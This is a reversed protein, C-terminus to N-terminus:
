ALVMNAVARGRGWPLYRRASKPRGGGAAAAAAAAEAAARAAEARRAKEDARRAEAQARKADAEAHRADAQARRAEAALKTLYSLRSTRERKHAQIREHAAAEVRAAEAHHAAAAAHMQALRAHRQAAAWRRAGDDEIDTESVESCDDKDGNGGAAASVDSLEGGEYGTVAAAAHPPAQAPPTHAFRLSAARHPLTAALDPLGDGRPSWEPAAATAPAAYRARWAQPAKHLDCAPAADAAASGSGASRGRWASPLPDGGHGHLASTEDEAMAPQIEPETAPRLFAPVSLIKPSAGAGPRDLPGSIKAAMAAVKGGPTAAMAAEGQAVLDGLGADGDPLYSGYQLHEAQAAARSALRLDRARTAAARLVREVAGAEDSHQTAQFHGVSYAAEMLLSSEDLAGPWGAGREGSPRARTSPPVGNGEETAGARAGGARMSGGRGAAPAPRAGDMQQAAAVASTEWERAAAALDASNPRSPGRTGHRAGSSPRSGSRACRAAERAERERLERLSSPYFEAAPREADDSPRRRAFGPLLSGLRGMLGTTSVARSDHCGGAGSAVARGDRVRAAGREPLPAGKPPAAACARAVFERPLVVRERGSLPGPASRAGGAAVHASSCHPAIIYERHRALLKLLGPPTRKEGRLAQLVAYLLVSRPHLFSVPLLPQVARSGSGGQRQEERERAREMHLRRFEAKSCLPPDKVRKSQKKWFGM